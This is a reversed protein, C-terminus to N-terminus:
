ENDHHFVTRHLKDAIRESLSYFGMRFDGEPLPIQIVVLVFLGKDQRIEENFYIVHLRKQRRPQNAIAMKVGDYLPGAEPRQRNVPQQTTPGPLDKEELNKEAMLIETLQTLFRAAEPEDGSRIWQLPTGSLSSTFYERLADDAEGAPVGQDPGDRGEDGSEELSDNDSEGSDSHSV